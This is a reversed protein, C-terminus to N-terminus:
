PFGFVNGRAVENGLYRVLPAQSKQAVERLADYVFQGRTAWDTIDYAPSLDAQAKLYVLYDGSGADIIGQRVGPEIKDLAVKGPGAGALLSQTLMLSGVLLLALVLFLRLSRM